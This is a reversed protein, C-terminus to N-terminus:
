KGRKAGASAAKRDAPPGQPAAARPKAPYHEIYGLLMEDYVQPGWTVTKTPDPNAPNNRSNDFWGTARIVTGKPLELPEALRYSIQWNTDYRPIDLLVQMQGDPLQAEYRFAKGRLHMHPLYSLIRTDNMLRLMGSEAHNPAGPPISLQGNGVGKVQVVNAPPAKAYVFGIRTQETAATGNPAFHFQFHLRSGAPLLKACDDPLESTSNGPVYAAFYGRALKVDAEEFRVEDKRGSDKAAPPLVFVMVHHVVEPTSPHIEIARIWKDETLETPAIVDHYPMTGTAKVAVPQPLQVILDPKGIKWDSPFRRPLAAESPDGAPKDGGLWSLLDKREEPPLSPDNSWRPAPGKAPPVAFWPPMVGRDIVSRIAAAHSAVDDYDDLPFPGAGGERHCEVCHNQLIRSIRNHFTIEAAPRKNKDRKKGSNRDSKVDPTKVDLSKVDLPCGPADTAAAEPRDGRLTAEIAEALYQRRPAELAYGLGYQDDVAGRYILTRRADLVFADTTKAAGLARAIEGENDRVYTGALGLTRISALLAEDPESATPNVFVFAVEPEGYKRELQALTPAFKKSLPCTTSTFAIVIARRTQLESLKGSTGRLDLLALDPVLRGIGHEMPNLRKPGQRVSDPAAGAKPADAARASSCPLSISALGISGYVWARLSTM